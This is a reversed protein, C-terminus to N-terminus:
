AKMPQKKYTGRAPALSVVTTHQSLARVLQAVLVPSRKMKGDRRPSKNRQSHIKERLSHSVLARRYDGRLELDTNGIM